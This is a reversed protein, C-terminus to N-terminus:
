TCAVCAVTYTDAPHSPESAAASSCPCDPAAARQTRICCGATPQNESCKLIDGFFYSRRVCGVSRRGTGAAVLYLHACDIERSLENVRTVCDAIWGEAARHTIKKQTATKASESRLFRSVSLISLVM